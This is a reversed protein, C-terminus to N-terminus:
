LRPRSVFLGRRDFAPGRKRAILADRASRRSRSRGSSSGGGPRALTLATTAAPPAPFYSWATYDGAQFEESFSATLPSGATNRVPIYETGTAPDVLYFASISHTAPPDFGSASDTALSAPPVTPLGALDFTPDCANDNTSSVCGVKMNLVLLNGDRYLAAGGASYVDDNNVWGHFTISGAQAATNGARAPAPPTPRQVAAPFAITVRRNLARGAPNDTGDPKTNPAVPDSSGKGSSAYTVGSTLPTLRDVVARARAQSLPLNVADTGISDTYGTVQVTGRARAKIQNAVSRLVAKAKPTLNSKNFEFLM